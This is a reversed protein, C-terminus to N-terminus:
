KYSEDIIKKLEMRYFKYNDFSVEPPVMHDTYPIYGGKELMRKVKKLERLIFEKNKSLVKKDIGGM